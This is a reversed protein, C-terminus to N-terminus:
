GVLRGWSDVNLARSTISGLREDVEVKERARRRRRWALFAAAVIAAAAASGLALGIALGRNGGGGGGGGEGAAGGRAPAPPVGYDDALTSLPPERAASANVPPRPGPPADDPCTEGSLCNALGRTGFSLKECDLHFVTRLSCWEIDPDCVDAPCACAAYQGKVLFHVPSTVAPVETNRVRFLYVVPTELGCNRVEIPLPAAATCAGTADPGGEREFEIQAVTSNKKVFWVIGRRQAPVALRFTRARLVLSPSGDWTFALGPIRNLDVLPEADDSAGGVLPEVVSAMLIALALVLPLARASRGM